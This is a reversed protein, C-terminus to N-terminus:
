RQFIKAISKAIPGLLRWITFGIQVAQVAQDVTLQRTAADAKEAAAIAADATINGIDGDAPVGLKTQLEIAKAASITVKPEENM